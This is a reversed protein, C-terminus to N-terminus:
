CHNNHLEAIYYTLSHPPDVRNRSDQLITPSWINIVTNNCSLIDLRLMQYEASV